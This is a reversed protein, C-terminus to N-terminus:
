KVEEVIAATAIGTSAVAAGIIETSVWWPIIIDKFIEETAIIGGILAM